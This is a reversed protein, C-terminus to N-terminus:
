EDIIEVQDHFYIMSNLSLVSTSLRIEYVQLGSYQSLIHTITTILEALSDPLDDVRLVQMDIKKERDNIVFTWQSGTYDLLNSDIYSDELSFVDTSQVAVRMNTLENPTLQFTQTQQEPEDLSLCHRNTKKRTVTIEGTYTITTTAANHCPFSGGTFMTVQFARNQFWLDYCQHVEPTLEDYKGLIRIANALCTDLADATIHNGFNEVTNGTNNFMQQSMEDTIPQLFNIAFLFYATVGIIIISIVLGSAILIKRLSLIMTYFNKQGGAWEADRSTPRPCFETRAIELICRWNPFHLNLFTLERRPVRRECLIQFPNKPRLEFTNRAFDVPNQRIVSAGRGSAESVIGARHQKTNVRHSRRHGHYSKTSAGGEWHACLDGGNKPFIIFRRPNSGKFLM